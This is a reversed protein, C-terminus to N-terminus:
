MEVYIFVKLISSNKAKKGDAQQNVLHLISNELTNNWGITPLKDSIKKEIFFVSVRNVSLFKHAAQKGPPEPYCLAPCSQTLKVKVKM